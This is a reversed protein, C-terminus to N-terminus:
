DMLSARIRRIEVREVKICYVNEILEIEGDDFVAMCVDKVDFGGDIFGIQNLKEGRFIREIKELKPDKELKLTGCIERIYGHVDYFDFNFRLLNVIDMELGIDVVFGSVAKYVAPSINSETMKAALFISGLAIRALSYKPFLRSYAYAYIIQSATRSALPLKLRSCTDHILTNIDLKLKEESNM